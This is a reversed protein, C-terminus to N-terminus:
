DYFLSLKSKLTPQKCKPCFKLEEVSNIPAFPKPCDKSRYLPIYQGTSPLWIHGISSPKSKSIRETPIEKPIQERDWILYVFKGNSVCYGTIQDFLRGGGFSVHDSYHCEKNECALEYVSGALITMPHGLWASLVVGILFRRKKHSM